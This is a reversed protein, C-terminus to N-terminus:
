AGARAAGLWARLRDQLVPLRVNGAELVRDHFTRLDFRPGLAAEAEARLRRIEAYGVMYSTAQGPMAIYRDIEAEAQERSLATHALLLELARTREWGLAHLGTDVVLRLARWAFNSLMGLRDVDGTYLGLEDALREAYLAWGEAFASHGLFRAIAPLEKREMALALQLHHGPVLEHFAVAEGIARSQAEPRYLRVRYTAPRSGDVAAMLYHAATREQFAPIPELVAPARPLLGFARPLAAEARAIAWRAQRMVEDGDRFRHAPDEKLRQLLVARTAGGFRQQALARMEEEISALEQFGRAHVREPDLDLSTAMRLMARYCTAGDPNAAVGPEARARPLLENALFDRHRWLAPQIADRVLAELRARFAPDSDRRGPSAFPSEAPPMSALAELQGIVLAVSGRWPRYGRHLGERLNETQTDAYGPLAAFRALAQDRLEPSGVPQAEALNALRLQWGNPMQSVVWLESRCIAVAAQDELRGLALAHALAAMPDVLAERPIARLEALWATRRAQRAAVGALSDDPLTDYRTGPIRLLAAREPAAEFADAVVAEALALARADAARGGRGEGGGPAACASLFLVIPASRALTRVRSAAMTM